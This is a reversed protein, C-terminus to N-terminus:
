LHDQGSFSSKVWLKLMYMGGKEELPMREGTEEDQVFSGHASFVVRNGAQAVRHVSLLAKNVDCVQAKMQRMVGGDSVAVFQKEGLNPILTGDAVEYRVGKRMADGELKAVKAIMDDAVVSESAGSDVAMELIEWEQSEEVSRLGDPMRIGLSGVAGSWASEVCVDCCPDVCSEARSDTCCFKEKKMGRKSRRSKVLEFDDEDQSKSIKPRDKVVQSYTKTRDRVVQSNVAESTPAPSPQISTRSPPTAAPREEGISKVLKSKV